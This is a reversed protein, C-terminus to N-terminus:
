SHCWAGSREPAKENLPCASTWRVRSRRRRRVTRPAIGLVKAILRDSASLLGWTWRRGQETFLSPRVDDFADRAWTPLGQVHRLWRQSPPIARLHTLWDQVLASLYKLNLTDAVRRYGYDFLEPHVRELAAIAARGRRRVAGRGRREIGDFLDREWVTRASPEAHAVYAARRRRAWALARDAHHAFARCEPCPHIRPTTLDPRAVSLIYSAWIALLVLDVVHTGIANLGSSRSSM